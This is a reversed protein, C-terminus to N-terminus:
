KRKGRQTPFIFPHPLLEKFTYRVCADNLDYLVVETEVQCFEALVQLCVACPPAPPKDDSVVVVLAANFDKEMSVAKMIAGREACITAGYSSNEVNCGSYIAGTQASVVAAGVNFHSYPTYANERAATAASRARMLLLLHEFEVSTSFDEIEEFTDIVADAGAARLQAATFSTTVGVCLAGAAKAAQIGNLADEFVICTAIDVGLRKAALQYIDPFPKKKKVDKGHVLAKFWNTDLSAVRLNIDLKMRDASTAVAMPIGAQYLNQLFRHVPLFADSSTEILHEYIGYTEVKAQELDVEIGYLEAVGGIYRDEGSGVFPIFDDPKVAVGRRAFFQIAAQNIYRESEILVGDMDFLVATVM